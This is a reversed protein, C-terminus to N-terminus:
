GALSLDKNKMYFDAKAVHEEAYSDFTDCYTNLTTSIDTHGLIHQLVQPPMGGEICRTAYTHRLTHLDVKGEVSHDIIDYRKLLRSYAGSVKNTSVIGGDKTSFIRGERRKGIISRLFVLVDDGVPLRRMGAATKTHKRICDAKNEYLSVTKNVSIIGNKFDIDKVELANVEGMRMGTFMSLLMQDGYLVKKTKLIDLLEDQEALTLARVKVKEQKTKPKKISIMPHETIYKKRVAEDLTGKLMQYVKNIISQSYGMQTILFKKVTDETIDKIRINGIPALKKLTECKRDYTSDSIENLDHQDEIIKEALEHLTITESPDEEEVVKFEGAKLRRKFDSIKENVEGKTRGYFSKRKEEGFFECKLQGVYRNRQKNFYLSYGRKRKAMLRM